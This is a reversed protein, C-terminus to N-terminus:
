KLHDKFFNPNESTYYLCQDCKDKDIHKAMINKKDGQTMKMAPNIFVMKMLDCMDDSDEYLRNMHKQLDNLEQTERLAWKIGKTTMEKKFDHCIHTCKEARCHILDICESCNKENDFVEWRSLVEAENAALDALSRTHEAAVTIAQYRSFTTAFRKDRAMRVVKASKECYDHKHDVSHKNECDIALKSLESAMPCNWNQLEIVKPDNKIKIEKAPGLNEIKRLRKKLDPAITLINADSLQEVSIMKEQKPQERVERYKEPLTKQIWSDSVTPFHEKKLKKVLLSVMNLKIEDQGRPKQTDQALVTKLKAIVEPRKEEIGKALHDALKLILKKLEGHKVKEIQKISDLIVETEEIYSNL